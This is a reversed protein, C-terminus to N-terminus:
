SSEPRTPESIHILSLRYELSWVALGEQALGTLFPYAHSMDFTNLWCGGHIFVVLPYPSDSNKPLFLKGFQLPDDGYALRQDEQVFELAQIQEFGIDSGVEPYRIM